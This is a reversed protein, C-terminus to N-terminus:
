ELSKKVGSRAAVIICSEGARIEAEAKIVIPLRVRINAVGYKPDHWPTKAFKTGVRRKEATQSPKRVSPHSM